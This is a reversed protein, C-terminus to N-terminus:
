RYIFRSFTSLASLSSTNKASDLELFQELLLFLLFLAEFVRIIREKRYGLLRVVCYIVLEVFKIDFVFKLIVVEWEGMGFIQRGDGINFWKGGGFHWTEEFGVILLANILVFLLFWSARFRVVALNNLTKITFAALFRLALDLICKKDIFWDAVNELCYFRSIHRYGKECFIAVSSRDFEDVANLFNVCLNKPGIVQLDDVAVLVLFLGCIVLIIGDWSM